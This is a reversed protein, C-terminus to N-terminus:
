NTGSVSTEEGSPLEPPNGSPVEGNEDAPPEPRDGSNGSPPESRDGTPVVMDSGVQGTLKAYNYLFTVAQGRTCSDEPSFTSESTGSTISNVAAWAVADAYYADTDM